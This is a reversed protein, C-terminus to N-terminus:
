CKRTDGAGSAAPDCLRVQGGANVKVQMCRAEGGVLACTRGSQVFEVRADAGVFGGSANFRISSTSSNIAISSTQGVRGGGEGGSKGEIFVHPDDLAEPTQRVIWNPGNDTLGNTEVSDAVPPQDTFVLEVPVNRRIAETRAQQLSAYLSEAAALTKMNESYQSLSPAAMAALVAFITVTVMLEILSFGDERAVSLM